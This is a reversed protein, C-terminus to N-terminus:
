IEWDILRPFVKKANENTVKVVEEPSVNKIQAIMNVVNTLYLSCNRKGRFPEPALYPCDTELLIDSLDLYDVTDKLKKANKFTVVGGIGFMCGMDKFIRASEPSYSYCHMVCGSLSDTYESLIRITDECADRSHIIAPLGVSRALGLQRRFWLHQTEKDAGMNHYDLGIEGIAVIKEFATAASFIEIEEETLISVEDPHVGVAAFVHEYKKALEISDYAGKVAAGVNIVAEIGNEPLTALLSKRDDDFAPDDYHAHTDIIGYDKMNMM